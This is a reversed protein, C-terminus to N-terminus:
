PVEKLADTEDTTPRSMQHQRGKGKQGITFRILYNANIPINPNQKSYLPLSLLVKKQSTGTARANKVSKKGLDPNNTEM